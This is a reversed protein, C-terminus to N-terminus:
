AAPQRDLRELAPQHLEANTGSAAMGTPATPRQTDAGPTATPTATATATPTATPTASPTPTPTPTPTGSCTEKTMGALNFAPTDCSEVSNTFRGDVTVAAEYPNRPVMRVTTPRQYAWYVSYYHCCQGNQFRPAGFFNNTLTWGGYPGGGGRGRTFFVDMTGCNSFHSNKITINAAQSYLCEDRPIGDTVVLVDHFRVNDITCGM